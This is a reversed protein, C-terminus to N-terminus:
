CASRAASPLHPRSTVFTVSATSPEARVAALEPEVNAPALLPSIKVENSTLANSTGPPRSSIQRNVGSLRRLPRCSPDAGAVPLAWMSTASRGPTVTSVHSSAVLPEAFAACGGVANGRLRERREVFRRDDGDIFAGCGLLRDLDLDGAGAFALGCVSVQLDADAFEGLRDDDDVLLAASGVGVVDFEHEAVGGPERDDGDGVPGVVGDVDGGVVGREALVRHQAVDGDREAAVHDPQGASHLEARGPAVSLQEPEVEGVVALVELRPQQDVVGLRVAAGVHQVLTRQLAIRLRVLGIRMRYPDAIRQDAGVGGAGVRELHVAVQHEGVPGTGVRHGVEFDLGALDDTGSVGAGGATEVVLLHEVQAGATDRLVLCSLSITRPKKLSIMALIATGAM